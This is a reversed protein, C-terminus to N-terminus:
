IKCIIVERMYITGSIPLGQLIYCIIVLIKSIQM